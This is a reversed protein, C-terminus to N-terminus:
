AQVFFSANHFLELQKIWCAHGQHDSQGNPQADGNVFHEKYHSKHDRNNGEDLTDKMGHGFADMSGRGDAPM